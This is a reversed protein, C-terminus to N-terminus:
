SAPMRWRRATARWRARSRSTTASKLSHSSWGNRKLVNPSALELNWNTTKGDEGKVDLYFRAHPNMWEVKTVVGKSRLPSRRTTNRPSLIIPWARFPRLLLSLGALLASFPVKM